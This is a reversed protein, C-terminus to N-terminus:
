HSRPAPPYGRSDGSSESAARFASGGIFLIGGLELIWNWKLAGLRSALLVDVHHFSAARIAVFALVFAMGISAARRNRRSRRSAWLCWGLLGLCAAAVSGIFAMQYIRRDQYLSAGKLVGRGVETLFSQLDLQKNIGLLTMLAALVLWFAAPKGRRRGDPSPEERAAWGCLAAAVLYAVVTIWGAVTPDGIGPRWRGDVIKALITPNLM